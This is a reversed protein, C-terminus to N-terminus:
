HPFLVKWGKFLGINDMLYFMKFKELLNGTNAYSSYVMALLPEIENDSLFIKMINEVADYSMNCDSDM